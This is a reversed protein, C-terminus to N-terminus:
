FDGILCGGPAPQGRFQLQSYKGAVMSTTSVDLVDIM